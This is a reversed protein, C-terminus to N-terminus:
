PMRHVHWKRVVRAPGIHVDIQKTTYRLGTSRATCLWTCAAGWHFSQVLACAIAQRSVEKIEDPHLKAFALAKAAEM